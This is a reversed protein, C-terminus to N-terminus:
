FKDEEELDINVINSEEEKIASHRYRIATVKPRPQLPDKGYAATCISGEKNAEVFEDYSMM